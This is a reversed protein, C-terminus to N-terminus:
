KYILNFIVSITVISLFGIIVSIFDIKFKKKM